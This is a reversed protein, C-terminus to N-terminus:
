CTHQWVCICVVTSLRNLYQKPLMCYQIMSSTWETGVTHLQWLMKNCEQPKMHSVTAHSYLVESVAATFAMWWGQEEGYFGMLLGEAWAFWGYSSHLHPATLKTSAHGSVYTSFNILIAAVAESVLQALGVPTHKGPDWQTKHLTFSM